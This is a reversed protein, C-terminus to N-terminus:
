TLQRRAHPENDFEIDHLTVYTDSSSFSIEERKNILRIWGGTRSKHTTTSDPLSNKLGLQGLTPVHLSVWLCLLQVSRPSVGLKPIYSATNLESPENNSSNEIESFASERHAFYFPPRKSSLSLPLAASKRRPPLYPILLPLRTAPIYTPTDSLALFAHPRLFKRDFDLQYDFSQKTIKLALHCCAAPWLPTRAVSRVERRRERNDTWEGEPLFSEKMRMIDVVNTGRM